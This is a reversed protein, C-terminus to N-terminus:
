MHLQYLFPMKKLTIVIYVNYLSIFYFACKTWLFIQVARRLLLTRSSTIPLSSLVQSSHVSEGPSRAKSRRPVLFTPMVMWKVDALTSVGLLFNWTFLLSWTTM